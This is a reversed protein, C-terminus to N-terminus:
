FKPAITFCRTFTKGDKSWEKHGKHTWLPTDIQRKGQSVKFILNLM